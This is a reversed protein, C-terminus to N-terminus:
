HTKKIESCRGSMPCVGDYGCGTCGNNEGRMTRYISRVGWLVAGTVVVCVLIKEMM